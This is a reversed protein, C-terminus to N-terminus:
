RSTNVRALLGSKSEAPLNMPYILDNESVFDEGVVLGAMAVVAETAPVRIGAIHSLSLTFVLGYPVDEALFRTHIDTPGPPGGRKDHLEAAIDALTGSVTDFSQAFHREINRVKLGFADALALREADLQEIVAAVRPTMYHYQPWNEAREIRTWNFLALPGHAVPNINTLSTALSNEDSTFEGGFLTDCLELVAQQSTRPLSSVGLSTRRTMIRVQTPASRRATLVTTGFSAVTVPVGRTRAAEYLYLASLSSMSSVIVTQGAHLHPLLADMVARHGNVPVAILLVEGSAAAQAADGAVKVSVSSELVGGSVLPAQVLPHPGKGRPAWLTVEHGRAAIWAASALGIGGCGVIGVRMDQEEIFGTAPGIGPGAAKQPTSSEIRNL